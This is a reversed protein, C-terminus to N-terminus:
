KEEEEREMNKVERILKELETESRAFEADGKKDQAERVKRSVAERYEKERQL